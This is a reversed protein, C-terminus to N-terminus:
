AKWNLTPATQYLSISSEISAASIYRHNALTETLVGLRTGTGGALILALVKM